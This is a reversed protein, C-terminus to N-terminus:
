SYFEAVSIMGSNNISYIFYFGGNFLVRCEFTHHVIHYFIETVINDKGIYLPIVGIPDRAILFDDKEEDYLAFAFIGNLEELFHIGKDRYLALIVECDSGTHFDYKEAYKARVDRHNYIEGNM